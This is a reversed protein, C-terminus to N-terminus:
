YAGCWWYGPGDIPPNTNAHLDLHWCSYQYGSPMCTPGPTQYPPQNAHGAGFCPVYIGMGNTSTPDWASIGLVGFASEINYPEVAKAQLALIPSLFGGSPIPVNNVSLTVTVTDTSTLDVASMTPDVTGPLGTQTWLNTVLAMIKTGAKKPDYDPRQAGIWYRENVASRAGADAVQVLVVHYYSSIGIYLTLFLVALMIPLLIVLFAAGEAIAQGNQRHSSKFIIM